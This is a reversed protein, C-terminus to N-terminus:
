KSKNKYEFLIEKIKEHTAEKELRYKSAVIKHTKDREMCDPCIYFSRGMGSYRTLTDSSLQLRILSTQLYRGKCIICMRTPKKEQIM